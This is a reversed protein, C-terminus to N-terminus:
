SYSTGCYRCVATHILLLYWAVIFALLCYEFNVLCFHYARILTFQHSRLVTIFAKLNFWVNMSRINLIPLDTSALVMVVKDILNFLVLIPCFCDSFFM